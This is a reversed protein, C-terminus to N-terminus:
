HNQKYGSKQLSCFKSSVRGHPLKLCNQDLFSLRSSPWGPPQQCNQYWQQQSGVWSHWRSGVTLVQLFSLTQSTNAAQLPRLLQLLALLSWTFPATSTGCRYKGQLRVTHNYFCLCPFLQQLKARPCNCNSCTVWLFAKSIYVGDKLYPM